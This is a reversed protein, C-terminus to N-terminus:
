PANMGVVFRAACAPDISGVNTAIAIAPAMGCPVPAVRVSSCILRTGDIVPDHGGRQPDRGTTATAVRRRRHRHPVLLPRRDAASCREQLKSPPIELLSAM